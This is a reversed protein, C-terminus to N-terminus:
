EAAQIARITKFLEKDLETKLLFARAGAKMAEHVDNPYTTLIIIKAGPFENLIAVTADVGNMEPMQLDMLTIDPRHQRFQQIGERGNAAQAVLTMDPQTGLVAALGSRFAPHDDVTLIRIAASGGPHARSADRAGSITAGDGIRDGSVRTVIGDHDHLRDTDLSFEIFSLAQERASLEFTTGTDVVVNTPSTRLGDSLRNWRM